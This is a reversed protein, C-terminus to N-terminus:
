ALIMHPNKAKIISDLIENYDHGNIESVVCKSSKYESIINNYMIESINGNIQLENNDIIININNLNFKKIFRRAESIQGKQQEGDGM